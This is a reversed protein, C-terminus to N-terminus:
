AFRREEGPGDVNGACRGCIEPHADVSGVDARRHWCRICKDGASAVASVVVDESTGDVEEAHADSTIFVFRLEDGLAALAAYRDGSASVTVDAELGSGITGADRLTELEKGVHERVTTVRGWDIDDDAVHPIEHWTSLFVSDGRDGPMSAWIEEATFSLIPAIWRVMAEAIHYLATQASRRPVSDVGTTYLRDKIVDLYFGGMDLVCFNHVNQYVRHFEYKEYYDAIDTQVARARAIAWRDLAVLSDPDLADEAPDFGHLNGLLFRATNRIRRYADSTRKLIEDSVSMEGRYDTAAVWLRLVDAGLSNIVTQPLIVNGRSKSM